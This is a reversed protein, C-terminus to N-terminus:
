KARVTVSLTGSNDALSSAPENIKLYLTGSTTPEIESMLGLPQPTLLPTIAPAEGDLDGLAALLMGLPNGRCYHITVGGANCPWPKPATALVYQGATSIRYAKGAELRYGSSQWGRDTALKITAGSTPLEVVPQRQVTARRIDYGYDCDFIFIQWDEVIAPWHEKVREYFRKSFELTRDRTDTKLERFAAQTLPHQDLFMAAAWCWGYTEVQL